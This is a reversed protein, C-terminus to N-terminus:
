KRGGFCDVAARTLEMEMDADKEFKDLEDLLEKLEPTKEYRSKVRELRDKVSQYDSKVEGAERDSLPKDMFKNVADHTEQDWDIRRNPAQMEEALKIRDSETIRPVARRDAKHLKKFDMKKKASDFLTVANHRGHPIGYFQSGDHYFGEFGELEMREQLRDMAKEPLRGLEVDQKLDDILQKSTKSELDMKRIGIDDMIGRFVRKMKEDPLLDLNALKADKLNVEYIGGSLQNVKRAAAANAVFVSDSLQLQRSKFNFDEHLTAMYEPKLPGMRESSIYFTKDSIPGELPRYQYDRVGGIEIDLGSPPKPSTELAYDRLLPDLELRKFDLAQAMGVQQAVAHSDVGLRKLMQIVKAAGFRVGTFGVAGGATSMFADMATYDTMDKTSAAAIPIEAAINGLTGEIAAHGFRQATTAGAMTPVSRFGAKALLGTAAKQTIGLTAGVRTGAAALGLVPAMMYGAGFEVPDMAHPIMGGLFNLTGYFFGDPGQNIKHALEAREIQQDVVFQAQAENMSETFPRPMNPYKKNLEVPSLKKSGNDLEKLAKMRAFSIIATDKMAMEASLEAAGLASVAPTISDFDEGPGKLDGEIPLQPFPM